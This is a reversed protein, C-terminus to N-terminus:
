SRIIERKALYEKRRRDSELAISVCRGFMGWVSGYFIFIMVILLFIDGASSGVDEDVAYEHVCEPAYRPSTSVHGLVDKASIYYEVKKGGPQPPIRGEFKGDPTEKMRVYHWASTGDLRYYVRVENPNLGVTSSVIAKVVYEEVPEAVDKSHKYDIVPSDERPNDAIDILYLEPGLNLFAHRYIESEPPAYEQGIEITFAFVGMAGYLWDDSDGCTKYLEYGQESTYGNMSAITDSIRKLDAADKAPESTYGWPYLSLEGYSHYTLSISFNHTEVLARVAKSEATSFGGMTDEDIKGDNDNDLGDMPDENIRPRGSPYTDGDDNNTDFPGAYNPSSPVHSDGAIEGWHWGYNRNIDVGISSAIGLPGEFNPERNKRWDSGSTRTYETGDPNIMPIIWIERNNVLYRIRGEHEDEDIKGDGDNDKGDIPDEGQKGDGDNDVDPAYNDTLFNMLFIAVEFGIWENGHHPGVFLVEPESDDEKEPNDSIKIALIDRNEYTKGISFLKAINPHDIVVENLEIVMDDYSHYTMNGPDTANDFIANRYYPAPKPPEINEANSSSFPM